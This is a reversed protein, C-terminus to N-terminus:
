KNDDFKEDFIIKNFIDTKLLMIEAEETLFYTKHGEHDTLKLKADKHIELPEEMDHKNTYVMRIFYSILDFLPRFNPTVTGGMATRKETEKAARPSKNGLIFDILDSIIDSRELM